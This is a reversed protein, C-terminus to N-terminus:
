PATIVGTVPTGLPRFLRDLRAHLIAAADEAGRQGALVGATLGNALALLAAVETRPDLGAPFTSAPGPWATAGARSTTPCPPASCWRSCVSL